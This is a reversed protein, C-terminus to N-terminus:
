MGVYRPTEHCGLQGDRSDPCDGSSGRRFSNVMRWQLAVCAKQVGAARRAHVQVVTARVRGKRWCGGQLRPNGAALSISSLGSDLRGTNRHRSTGNAHGLARDDQTSWSVFSASLCEASSMRMRGVDAHEHSEERCGCAEHKDHGVNAHGVLAAHM